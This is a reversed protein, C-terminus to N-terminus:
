GGESSAHHTKRYEGARKRCLRDVLKLLAPIRHSGYMQMIKRKAEELEIGASTVFLPLKSAGRFIKSDEGIGAFVKKAVGIVKSKGGLAEYLYMGLGARGREDLTVYGDILIIEPSLDNEGLLKLICPLERKYFNGPEYEAVGNLVTEYTADPRVAEWRDFSVAAVFGRNGVYQVDIALM